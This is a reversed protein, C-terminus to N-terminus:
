LGELSERIDKADKALRRAKQATYPENQDTLSGGLTAVDKVIDIPTTALDFGTKLIDGLLGMIKEREGRVM